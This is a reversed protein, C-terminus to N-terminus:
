YFNNFGYKVKIRELKRLVTNGFLFTVFAARFAHWLDYPLGSIYFIKLTNGFSGDFGNGPIALSTVTACLNMVGGYLILVTFFTFVTLTINDAPLRKRQLLAGAILGAAGFLYIRWGFFTNDGMPFILFHLYAIAEAIMVSILPGLIIRFSRSNIRNEEFWRGHRISAPDVKNFSFGALYGMMGWAFMQWPTWAGQGLFFNVIFRSLAGVLFGTEPGFAIGSIIVLSTGMQVPLIQLSLLDGVVTMASLIATMVTERARPPRKEYMIFFPLITEALILLSVLMYHRGLFLFFTIGITVPILLFLVALSFFTLRKKQKEYSKIGADEM